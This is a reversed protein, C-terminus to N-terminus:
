IKLMPEPVGPVGPEFAFLGGDLELPETGGLSESMSTIFLRRMDKGGFTVKTPNNFPLVVELDPTGDPLYRRLRGTSVLTAWYGGEADVTAGDVFGEGDGLGQQGTGRGAGGPGPVREGKEYQNYTNPALGAKKAFAGQDLNLAQRTASLRKGIEEKQSQLDHSM